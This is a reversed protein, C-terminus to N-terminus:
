VRYGIRFGGWHRGKVFIPASVDKMLVFNGGGMDRRYTQLLFPRTNRGAGLGTRDKFMRRNRCNAANWVPDSSQPKSYILNHTPLYGNRDIAACFVIREDLQLVPEQIAPLVADTFPTFRTLVQEPNTGPVPRYNEDFLDTMSIRGGDVAQEFLAAIEGARFKAIEILNSDPMEIGSSAIFLIFDESIDLITQSREGATTLKADSEKAVQVMSRLHGRLEDAAEINRRVPEAMLDINDALEEVTQVLSQITRTADSARGSAAIAAEATGVSSNANETLEGLTVQLASLSEENRKAAAGVQDALAKLASGIVAFGKGADGLRAAEISANIAVLQTERAIENISASVERVRKITETVKELTASFGMVGDSLAKMNSVADDLTGAVTDASQPLVARTQSAAAGVEQMSSQLQANIEKSSQASRVVDRLTQIQQHGLAGVDEILGALDAIEVGLRSGREGIAAISADHLHADADEHLRMAAVNM